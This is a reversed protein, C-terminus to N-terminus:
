KQKSNKLEELFLQWEIFSLDRKQSNCSKCCPVVNNKTSKGGQSIPLLHDMTASKATLDNGCYYCQCGNAIKNQWWSSNRLTKALDRERKQSQSDSM